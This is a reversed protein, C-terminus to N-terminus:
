VGLYVSPRVSSPNGLNHTGGAVGPLTCTAEGDSTKSFTRWDSARCLRLSPLARWCVTVDGPVPRPSYPAQTCSVRVACVRKRSLLRASHWSSWPHSRVDRWTSWPARQAPRPGTKLGLVLRLCWQTLLSLFSHPFQDGHPPFSRRDTVSFSASPGSGSLQSSCEVLDTQQHISVGLPWRIAPRAAALLTPPCCPVRSETLM